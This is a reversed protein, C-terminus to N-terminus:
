GGLTFSFSAGEGVTADAWITGGHRRVVRLATALGIGTGPFERDHHLRRFPEFLRDAHAMDFGVGNDRVRYTDIDIRSLEIRARPRDRRDRTFKWANGLLNELLARLLGPDGFVILSPAINREVIRSSEVAHLRDL